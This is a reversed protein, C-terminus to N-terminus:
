RAFDARQKLWHLIGGKLSFVKKSGGFLKNLEKAARLSRKGSQCFVVITNSKWEAGVTQLQALPISRHEFEGIVPLESEDRVDIVDITGSQLLQNFHDAEIELGTDASCFVEYDMNSLAQLDAPIM